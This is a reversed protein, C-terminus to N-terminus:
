ESSLKGAYKISRCGHVDIFSCYGKQLFSIILPKIEDKVVYHDSDFDYIQVVDFWSNDRFLSRIDIFNNDLHFDLYERRINEKGNHLCLYNSIVYDYFKPYRQGIINLVYAHIRYCQILPKPNILLKIEDSYICSMKRGKKLFCLSNEYEISIFIM